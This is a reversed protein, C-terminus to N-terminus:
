RHAARDQRLSAIRSNLEDIKANVNALRELMDDKSLKTADLMKLESRVELIEKDTEAWKLLHTERPVVEHMAIKIDKINDQIPSIALWWIGSVILLLVGLCSSLVGWQPNRSAIVAQHLDHIQIEISNFDTKIEVISREVGRLKEELVGFKSLGDWRFGASPDDAKAAEAMPNCEASNNFM